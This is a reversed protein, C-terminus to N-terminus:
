GEVMPACVAPITEMTWDELPLARLRWERVTREPATGTRIVGRGTLLNVDCFGHAEPDLTDHFSYTYGAVRYASDRWAITLIQEWRNRGIASNATILRLSGNSTLELRPLTGAAIGARGVGPYIRSAWQGAIELDARPDDEPVLLRFTEAHGNGDLDARIDQAALPGALLMVLLPALRM